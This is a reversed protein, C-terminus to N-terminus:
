ALQLGDVSLRRNLLEPSDGIALILHEQFDGQVVSAMPLDHRLECRIGM